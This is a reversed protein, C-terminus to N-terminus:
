DPTTAKLIARLHARTDGFAHELLHARKLYLHADCEFTYGMGGHLQIADRANHIAAEAAVIRASAVQFAADPVDDDAALAAHLLQSWAAETRVAMDACRHKVAQNVGIPKGFQERTKAHEATMDRTAEAIGTLMASTLVLARRYLADTSEALAAVVPAGTLAVEALRAADDACRIPTTPGLAATELLASRDPEVLLVHSAGEGDLLDFRGSVARDASPGTDPADDPESRRVLLGVPQEGGLIGAAVQQHGTRAALRAALVSAILPGPTLYRGVERFLLAQQALGYGAGGLSEDLGLGFWGLDAANKWFEADVASPAGFTERVKSVPFLDALFTAVSEAIEREEDDPLLDM